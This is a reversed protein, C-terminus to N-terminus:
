PNQFHSRQLLMFACDIEHLRQKCICISSITVNENCVTALYTRLKKELSRTEASGCPKDALTIHFRYEDFVYPYGWEALFARQRVSLKGPNRRAIEQESPAARFPEFFSVADAALANIGQVAQREEPSEESPVLAFFSGLRAFKLRPLTISQRSKAFRAAALLLDRETMGPKPFFPARLTAHLGYRRANATLAHLHEQSFGTFLPQPVAHGTESDRGLLTSGLDALATQPKPIYYIAYRTNM